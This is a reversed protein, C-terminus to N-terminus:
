SFQTCVCCCIRTKELNVYQVPELTFIYSKFREILLLHWLLWMEM